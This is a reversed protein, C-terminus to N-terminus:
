RLKKGATSCAIRTRKIRALKWWCIICDWVLSVEISAQKRVLHNDDSSSNTGVMWLSKMDVQFTRPSNGKMEIWSKLFVCYHSVTIQIVTPSLLFPLHWTTSQTKSWSLAKHNFDNTFVMMESHIHIPVMHAVEIVTHRMELLYVGQFDIAINYQLM